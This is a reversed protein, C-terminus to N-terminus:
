QKPEKVKPELPGGCICRRGVQGAIAPVVRGCRKCVLLQSATVTVPTGCICLPPPPIPGSQIYYLRCRPCIWVIRAGSAMSRVPMM